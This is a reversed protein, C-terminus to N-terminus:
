SFAAFPVFFGDNAAKIYELYYGEGIKTTLIECDEYEELGHSLLTQPLIRVKPAIVRM